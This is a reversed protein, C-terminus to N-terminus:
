KTRREKKRKREGGKERRKRRRGREGRVMGEEWVERKGTERREKRRESIQTDVQRFMNPPGDHDSALLLITFLASTQARIDGEWDARSQKPSPHLSDPSHFGSWLNTFM